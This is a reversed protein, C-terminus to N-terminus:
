NKGVGAGSRVAASVGNVAAPTTIADRSVNGIADLVSTDEKFNNSSPAPNVQNPECRRGLVAQCGGDSGRPAFVHSSTNTIPTTVSEFDNGEILAHVANGTDLAHGDGNEFLNNVVHVIAQSDIKPARGSFDHLWNNAFTFNGKGYFLQNWYHKGNCFPAYENRGDFENWSVTMDTVVGTQDGTGTVIMQRGIRAFYNHDIWVRSADSVTIGDGGFVLGQAIDTFSLNRVIINSVGGMLLLGKGKIVGSRGVGVLTKNSGVLLGRTAAKKYTINIMTKGDCHTDSASYKLTAETKAPASCIQTAYCGQGQASGETDTLDITSAVEIIRPTNDSCYGGSTNGCLAQRLQDPTTVRVTTGGAGGTVSHGFGFPKAGNNQASFNATLAKNGNMTLTLPNTNGTAAGSWGSFVSGSAPTATISVSSGARYSHSGASLSTSGNGNIAIDLTYNVAQSLVTISSTATRGGDATTATITANGASVGTVVGSANVTAVGTNSSSWNVNKNSANTPQVNASLSTTSGVSLAASAPTVSVGSVAIPQTGGNSGNIEFHAWSLKAVYRIYYNGDIRPPMQNSWQSNYSVGNIEVVEAGWSNVSDISGSTVICTDATGTFVKPLSLAAANACTAGTNGNDPPPPPQSGGATANAANSNGTARNADTYKIWYWYRRGNAATNDTYSRASGGLTAVRQRGSPNSDTDRMVQVGRLNDTTTWSLDIRGDGGAANLTVDAARVGGIGFAFIFTALAVPRWSCWGRKESCM